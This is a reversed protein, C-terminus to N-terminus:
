KDARATVIYWILQLFLRAKYFTISFIRHQSPRLKHHSTKQGIIEWLSASATRKCLYHASISSGSVLTHDWSLRHDAQSRPLIVWPVTHKKRLQMHDSSGLLTSGVDCKKRNTWDVGHHTWATLVHDENGPEMLSLIQPAPPFLSGLGQM